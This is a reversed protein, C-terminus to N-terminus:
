QEEEILAYGGLEGEFTAKCFGTAILQEVLWVAAQFTLKMERQLTNISVKGAARCIQQAQESLAPGFELHLQTVM